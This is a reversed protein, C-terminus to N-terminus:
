SRRDRGPTTNFHAKYASSLHSQSCFGVASAIASLPLESHKILAQARALRRQRLVDKPPLGIERQFLDQLARRSMGVAAALAAVQPPADGAAELVSLARQLRPSYQIAQQPQIGSDTAPEAQLLMQRTIQIAIDIGQERRVLELFLDLTSAAGSCTHRDRDLVYRQYRAHVAPYDQAFQPFDEWHVTAQYGILLGARALLYSGNSIGGLIVPHSAQQQLWHSLRPAKLEAAGFGAVVYIADATGTQTLKCDPRLELGTADRVPRDDASVLSWRYAEFGCARNAHRLVELASALSFLPLQPCLVFILRRTQHMGLYSM